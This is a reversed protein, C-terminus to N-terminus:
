FPHGARCRVAAPCRGVPQGPTRAGIRDSRGHDFVRAGRRCRPGAGASLPYRRISAHYRGKTPGTPHLWRAHGAAAGLCLTAGCRAHQSRRARCRHVALLSQEDPTQGTMDQLKGTRLWRKANEAGIGIDLDLPAINMDGMLVLREDPRHYQELYALLDAYFKAKAPFKVPHDRGEGQPCYCNIVTLPGKSTDFRASIIRRQAGEDDGPYGKQVQVPRELSAIAVGYHGKQGFYSVEYGLARIHAEPFEM